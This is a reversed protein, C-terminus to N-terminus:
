CSCNLYMTKTKLSYRIFFALLQRCLASQNQRRILQSNTTLLFLGKYTSVYSNRNSGSAAAAGHRRMVGAPSPPSHNGNFDAEPMLSESCATNIANRELTERGIWVWDPACNDADDKDYIAAGAARLAKKRQRFRAVFIACNVSFIVVAVCFVGLLTYMSIELASMPSAVNSTASVVHRNGVEKRKVALAKETGESDGGDAPIPRGSASSLSVHLAPKRDQSADLEARLPRLRRRSERGAPSSSMAADNQVDTTPTFDIDVEAYSVALPRSKRRRCLEASQLSVKLLEGTGAGVAIVRPSDPSYDDGFAVVHNNLTDVDVHYDSSSIYHLPTTTGDTFKVSISLLAEQHVCLPVLCLCNVDDYQRSIAIKLHLKKLM